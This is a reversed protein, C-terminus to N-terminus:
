SVSVTGKIIFAKIFIVAKTKMFALQFINNFHQKLVLCEICVSTKGFDDAHM